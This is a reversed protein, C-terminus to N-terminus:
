PAKNERYAITLYHAEILNNLHENMIPEQKEYIIALSTRKLVFILLVSDKLRQSYKTAM